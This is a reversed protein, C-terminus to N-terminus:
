GGPEGCRALTQAVRNAAMEVPEHEWIRVVNWGGALLREDTARDREQNLTIKQHWWDANTKPWTMHEPCGHWFCGDVLVALRQRPFAIDVRVGRSVVRVRHDKRFRLGRRHLASRLEVEPRTDKARNAVM